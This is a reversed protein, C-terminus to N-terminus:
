ACRRRRPLVLPYALPFTGSQIVQVGRGTRLSLVVPAKLNLALTEGRRTLIVLVHMPDSPRWDLPALEQRSVRLQFEPM